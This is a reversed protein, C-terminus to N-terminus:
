PMPVGLLRSTLKRAVPALFFIVPVGVVYAVGFAKMWLRFFDETLGVNIFTIVMTMLFIMMAGMILSFVLHFKKQPHM